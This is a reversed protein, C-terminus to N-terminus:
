MPARSTPFVGAAVLFRHVREWPVECDNHACPMASFEAHKAARALTRGHEFPIVDDRDGHLVLIPGAYGRVTALNDFPDRVLFEPAAFRHAFGRISTFTSELILAALPREKALLCIAGGGLSRGHGVIRTADIAAQQKAWDYAALIADRISAESPSGASRGYGPYEVLLVGMGLRRAEDFSNPWFDILEGNGHAYLLLPAPGNAETLPPLFWAEVRGSTTSLWVQRAHEPRALAGGILARPFVISRQFVFLLLWYAGLVGLIGLLLPRLLRTPKV